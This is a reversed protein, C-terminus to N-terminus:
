QSYWIQANMRGPRCGFSFLYERIKAADGPRQEDAADGEAVEDQRLAQLDQDREHGLTSVLRTSKVLYKENRIRISSTNPMAISIGSNTTSSLRAPTIM